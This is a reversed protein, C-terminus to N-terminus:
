TIIIHQQADKSGHNKYVDQLYDLPCPHSLTLRDATFLVSFQLFVGRGSRDNWWSRVDDTEKESLGEEMEAEEMKEM